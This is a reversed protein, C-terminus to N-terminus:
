RKVGQALLQIAYDNACENRGSLQRVIIINGVEKGRHRMCTVVPEDCARTPLLKGLPWSSHGSSHGSVQQGLLWFALAMFKPFNSAPCPKWYAPPAAAMCTWGMVVAPSAHFCYVSPDRCPTAHRPLAHCPTSKCPMAQYPTAHRPLAHCPTVKCPTAHRQKSQSPKAQCPKGLM